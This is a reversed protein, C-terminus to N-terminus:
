LGRLIVRHIRGSVPVKRRTIQQLRSICRWTIVGGEAATLPCILFFSFFLFLFLFLLWTAFSPLRSPFDDILHRARDSTYLEARHDNHSERWKSVSAGGCIRPTARSWGQQQQQNWDNKRVNRRRRKIGSTKMDATPPRWVAHADWNKLFFLLSSFFFLNNKLEEEDLHAGFPLNTVATIDKGGKEM